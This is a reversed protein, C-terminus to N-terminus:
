IADISTQKLRPAGAPSCIRCIENQSSKRLELRGSGGREDEETGLHFMIRTPTLDSSCCSKEREWFGWMMVEQFFLHDCSGM